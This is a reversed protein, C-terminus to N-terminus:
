SFRGANTCLYVEFLKLVCVSTSECFPHKGGTWNGEASCTVVHPLNNSYYGDYCRFSATDGVINGEMVYYGLGAADEEPPPCTIAPSVPFLLLLFLSLPCIYPPMYM